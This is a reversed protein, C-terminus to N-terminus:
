RAKSDDKSSLYAELRDELRRLTSYMEDLRRLVEAHKDDVMRITAFTLYCWSVAAAGAAVIELQM